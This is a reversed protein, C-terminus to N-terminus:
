RPPGSRSSRRSHLPRDAISDVFIIRVSGLSSHSRHESRLPLPLPMPVACHACWLAALPLIPRVARSLCHVASQVLLVARSLMPPPCPTAFRRLCRAEYAAPEIAIHCDSWATCKRSPLNFTHHEDHPQLTHEPDHPPAARLVRGDSSVASHQQRADGEGRQEKTISGSSSEKLDCVAVVVVLARSHMRRTVRQQSTERREERREERSLEPREPREAELSLEM